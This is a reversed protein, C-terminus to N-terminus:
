LDNLISYQKKYLDEEKRKGELANLSASLDAKKKEGKVQAAFISPVKIQTWVFQADQAKDTLQFWPRRKMLGKILNSNNGGGM